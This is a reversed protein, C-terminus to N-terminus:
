TLIRPRGQLMLMPLLFTPLWTWLPTSVPGLFPPRQVAGEPHTPHSLPLSACFTEPGCQCAAAPRTQRLVPPRVSLELAWLRAAPARVGSVLARLFGPCPASCLSPVRQSFHLPPLSPPTARDSSHACQMASPAEAFRACLRAYCALARKIARPCLHCQDPLMPVSQRFRSTKRTASHSRGPSLYLSMGPPVTVTGQHYCPCM